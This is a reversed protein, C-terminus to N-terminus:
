NTILDLVPDENQTVVEQEILYINNYYYIYDDIM